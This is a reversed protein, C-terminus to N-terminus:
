TQMANRSRCDEQVKQVTNGDDISEIDTEEEDEVGPDAEPYQRTNSLVDGFGMGTGGISFSDNEWVGPVLEEQAVEEGSEASV